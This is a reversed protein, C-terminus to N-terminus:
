YDVQIYHGWLFSAALRKATYWIRKFVMAPSGRSLYMLSKCIPLRLQHHASPRVLSHNEYGGGAGDVGAVSIGVTVGLLAGTGVGFYTDATSLLVMAILIM